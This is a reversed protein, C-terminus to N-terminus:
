YKIALSRAWKKACFPFPKSSIDLYCYKWYSGAKTLHQTFSKETTHISHIELNASIYDLTFKFMFGDTPDTTSYIPLKVPTHSRLRSLICSKLLMNSLNECLNSTISSQLASANQLKNQFRLTNITFIQHWTKQPVNQLGTFAPCGCLLLWCEM